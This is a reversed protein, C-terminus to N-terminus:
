EQFLGLFCNIQPERKEAEESVISVAILVESATVNPQQPSAIM